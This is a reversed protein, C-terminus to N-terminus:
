GQAGPERKHIWVPAKECSRGTQQVTVCKKGLPPYVMFGFGYAIEEVYREWDGPVKLEGINGRFLARKNAPEGKRDIPTPGGSKGM